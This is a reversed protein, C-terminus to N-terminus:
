AEDESLVCFPMASSVLSHKVIGSVKVNVVLELAFDVWDAGTALGTSVTFIVPLAPTSPVNAVDATSSLGDGSASTIALQTVVGRVVLVNSAVTNHVAVPLKVVGPSYQKLTVTVSVPVM